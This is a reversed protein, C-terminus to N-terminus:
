SRSLLKIGYNLAKAIIITSAAVISGLQFGSVLLSTYDLNEIIMIELTDIM